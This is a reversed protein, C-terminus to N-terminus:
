LKDTRWWWRMYISPNPLIWGYIHFLQLDLIAVRYEADCASSVVDKVVGYLSLYLHLANIHVRLYFWQNVTAYISVGSTRM